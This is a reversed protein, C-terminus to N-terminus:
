EKEAKQHKKVAEDLFQPTLYFETEFTTRSGKKICENWYELHKKDVELPSSEVAKGGTGNFVLWYVFIKGDLKETFVSEFYTKERDLTEIVAAHHDSLFKM